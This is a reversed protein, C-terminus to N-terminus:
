AEAEWPGVVAGRGDVAVRGVRVAFTRIGHPDGDFSVAGVTAGPRRALEAYRAPYRGGRSDVVEIGGPDPAAPGDATTFLVLATARVPGPPDVRLQVALVAVRVGAADAVPRAPGAWQTPPTLPGVPYPATVVPEGYVPAPTATPPGVPRTPVPATAVRASPGPQGLDAPRPGARPAAAFAAILLGALVTGRM